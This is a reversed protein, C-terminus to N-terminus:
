EEMRVALVRAEPEVQLAFSFAPQGSAADLQGFLVRMSGCRMDAIAEGRRASVGPLSASAFAEMYRQVSPTLKSHTYGSDTFSFSDLLSLGNYFLMEGEPSFVLQVPNAMAASLAEM